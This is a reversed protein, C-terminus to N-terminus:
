RARKLEKSVNRAIWDAIGMNTIMPNVGSASPFVSADAVFLNGTGWVRGRPDVVGDAERASMRCTGMQHASGYPTLPPRNDAGELVRLWAAFDPDSIGQDIDDIDEDDSKEDAATATGADTTAASSRRRVFSPVGAVFPWIETAGRIYCLKAIAVQGALIHARDSDSPTYAIVPQGGDPSPYVRGTDRDRAVAIFNNMRRYRLMDLKWQLGGHWPHGFIVLDPTMASTEIKVGHGKGDLNEFSTCVSTIIGGEWGKVDDDFAANVMGVPHVYLHQGIHPNKLGSRMLLLPSQLTGCAVIVKKAKVYVSRQIRGAEPTHVQGHEDRSTWKGFVGIAQKTGDNDDFLVKSVSFGEIFQAGAKAAAPLWSVTPGKKEASGCGMACHGCYHETGGTNQPCPKADELIVRAGHNHKIHADSVGMTACVRDLCHQFEATTFFELGQDAWEQRVYGQPHLSVSWNITGGGGWCSGALISISNDVSQMRGKGEYLYEQGADLRMPLQSPPFYYGKDVVVVRHGAEALVKACVAGGCGSGIIVVDTEVTEPESGEGFQMFGFDFAPGPRYHRPYDIYGNLQHLYRDTQAWCIRTLTLISNALVPWIKFWSGQWSRLIAERIRIPQEHIPTTYGTAALSGLRTALLSLLGGLQRKSHPPLNNLTRRVQGLFLQNELPRAGLYEIFEEFAPPHSTVQQIYEYSENCQSQSIRLHHKENEGAASGIVISPIVADIISLLVQWQTDDFYTSPGLAPLEVPVPVTPLQAAAM